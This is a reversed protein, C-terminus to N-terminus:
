MLKMNKAICLLFKRKREYFDDRYITPLDWVEYPYQRGDLTSEWIATRLKRVLEENSIDDGICNRAQDIAQVLKHQPSVSIRHLALAKDETQHSVHNGKPQGDPACSMNWVKSRENQLWELSAEYERCLWVVSQRINKSMKYKTQSM